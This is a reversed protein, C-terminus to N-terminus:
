GNTVEQEEIWNCIKKLPAIVEGDVVLTPISKVGAEALAATDMDEIYNESYVIGKKDLKTKAVKCQPCTASKYLKIEM